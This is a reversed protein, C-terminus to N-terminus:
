SWWYTAACICIWFVNIDSSIKLRPQFSLNIVAASRFGSILVKIFEKGILFHSRGTNFVDQTGNHRKQIKLCHSICVFENCYHCTLWSLQHALEYNLSRQVHVHILLWHAFSGLGLVICPFVWLSLPHLEELVIHSIYLFATNQQLSEWLWYM